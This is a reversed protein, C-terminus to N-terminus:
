IHQLLYKLSANISGIGEIKLKGAELDVMASKPDKYKVWM